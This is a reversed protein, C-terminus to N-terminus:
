EVRCAVAASITFLCWTTAAMERRNTACPLVVISPGSRPPLRSSTIPALPQKAKIAALKEDGAAQAGARASDLAAKAKGSAQAMKADVEEQRLKANKEFKSIEEQMGLLKGSREKLIKRVPKYLVGNLLFMLIIMNIVQIFLTIDTTIM